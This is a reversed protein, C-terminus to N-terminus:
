FCNLPGPVFPVFPFVCGCQGPPVPLCCARPATAPSSVCTNTPCGSPDSPNSCPSGPAVAADAPAAVCGGDICEQGSGCVACKVGDLGCARISTGGGCIHSGDPENEPDCCGQCTGPNLNCNYHSMSPSDTAGADDPGAEYVDPVGVDGTVIGADMDQQSSDSISSSSDADPRPAPRSVDAGGNADIAGGTYGSWDLVM